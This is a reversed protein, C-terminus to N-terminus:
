SINLMFHVKTCDSSVNIIMITMTITIPITLYMCAKNISLPCKIVVVVVLVALVSRASTMRRRSRSRTTSRMMMVMTMLLLMMMIIMMIMMMKIVSLYEFPLAGVTSSWQNALYHRSVDQCQVCLGDWSAMGYMFGKQWSLCFGKPVSLVMKGHWVYIVKAVFWM